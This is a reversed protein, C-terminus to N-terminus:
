TNGAWVGYMCKATHFNVANPNGQYLKAADGFWRKFDDQTPAHPHCDSIPQDVPEFYRITKAWKKCNDVVKDPDLVHQLVNFLWVEDCNNIDNDEAVVMSLCIPLDFVLEYLLTSPMPEIICSQSYNECFYLAPVDAPGIEIISKGKLDPDIGLWKFYQSYSESYKVLAVDKPDNHFRREAEQAEAWREQTIRSMDTQNEDQEMM